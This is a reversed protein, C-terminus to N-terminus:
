PRTLRSVAQALTADNLPGTHWGSENLYFWTVVNQRHDQCRIWLTGVFPFVNWTM